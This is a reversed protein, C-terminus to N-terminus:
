SFVKRILKKKYFESKDKDILKPSYKMELTVLNFFYQLVHAIEFDCSYYQIELNFIYQKFLDFYELLQMDLEEDKKEYNSLLEKVYNEAYCQKWSNGHKAYDASKFRDKCARKWYNEYGILPFIINVPHDTLIKDYVKCKWKYELGELAPYLLFNESTIDLAIDSLKLVEDRHKIEKKEHRAKTINYAVSKM